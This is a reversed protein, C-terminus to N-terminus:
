TAITLFWSKFGHSGIESGGKMILALILTTFVILPVNIIEVNFMM